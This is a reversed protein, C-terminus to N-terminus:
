FAFALDGAAVVLQGSAEITIPTTLMKVLIMNGGTIATWVGLHTVTVSPMGSFVQPNTTTTSRSAASSFTVPQRSYGGGSVETGILGAATPDSTHATLYTAGALLAEIATNAGWNSLVDAM